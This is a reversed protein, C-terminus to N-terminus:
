RIWGGMGMPNIKTYGEPIQFLDDSLGSTRIDEITSITRMTITQVQPGAEEQQGGRGLIGGLSKMAAAAAAAPDTPGEETALPEDLSALVADGDFEMGEPVMVFASVTKLPLGELDKLADKNEEFAQQMRPDSGFAAAFGQGARSSMFEQGMQVQAAQYAEYGPVESSVWLQTLLVMSGGGGGGMAMGMGGSGMSVTMLVEQAEYGGIEQTRGTRETHFQTEFQPQQGGWAEAGMGGTMGQSMSAVMEAMEEMTLSFYTREDHQLTTIVGEAADIITSSEDSNTRMLTGKVFVTERTPENAGPVMGMM